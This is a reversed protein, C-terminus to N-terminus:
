CIVDLGLDLRIPLDIRESSVGLEQAWISAVHLEAPTM